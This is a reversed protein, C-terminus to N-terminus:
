SFCCHREDFSASHPRCDRLRGKDKFCVPSPTTAVEVKAVYQQAITKAVARRFVDGVVIGRVGGDPKQLAIM